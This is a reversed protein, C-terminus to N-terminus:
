LAKFYKVRLLFTMLSMMQKCILSKEHKSWIEKWMSGSYVRANNIMRSNKINPNEKMFRWSEYSLLPFAVFAAYHFKEPVDIKVTSLQTLIVNGLKQVYFYEICFVQLSKKRHILFHNLLFIMCYLILHRFVYSMGEVIALKSSYFYKFLTAHKM